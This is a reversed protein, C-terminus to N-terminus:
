EETPQIELWILRMAPDRDIVRATVEDGIGPRDATQDVALHCFLGDVDVFDLLYAHIQLEFGALAAVGGRARHPEEERFRRLLDVLSDTM